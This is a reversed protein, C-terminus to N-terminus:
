WGNMGLLHDTAAFRSTSAVIHKIRERLLDPRFLCSWRMTIGTPSSIIGFVESGDLAQWILESGTIGNQKVVANDSGLDNLGRGFVANDIGFGSCFRRHRSVINGFADLFYGCMVPEAGIERCLKIGYLM